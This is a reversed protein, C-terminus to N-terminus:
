VCNVLLHDTSDDGNPFLCSSTSPTNIGRRSLVVASPIHDMSARWLFSIVNLPVLKFWVTPNKVGVILKSDILCRLDHVYFNGHISLHLEM